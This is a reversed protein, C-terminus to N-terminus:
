MGARSFSYHKGRGIIVHDVVEVDILALAQTILETVEKDAPSPTAIGSPHNHALILKAANHALSRRVIERPYIASEHITGHFLEEYALLRCHQDLFLCAFIEQPRNQLRNALFVAADRYHSFTDGLIIPAEMYRKGLEVAAKLAAYKAPGVGHIVHHLPAALLTPLNGYHLLLEKAIDLATKQRTGTALFIAILEADTLAQEGQTLLKERPRDSKPWDRIRLRTNGSHVETMQPSKKSSKRM